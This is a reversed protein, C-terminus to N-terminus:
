LITRCLRFGQRNLEASPNHRIRSQIQAYNSALNWGGGTSVRSGYQESPRGTSGEKPSYDFGSGHWDWCWEFVNGSMDYLGFGNCKKQGVGQIKKDSNERTWAVEDANDSGAYEFDQNATAAYWWEWDTPLRYGNLELRQQVNRSVEEVKRRDQSRTLRDLGGEVEKPLIYVPELGQEESLKNCFVVSAMWNVFVVPRSSGIYSALNLPLDGIVSEWLANTVPYKGIAYKKKPIEVTQMVEMRLRQQFSESLSTWDINSSARLYMGAFFGAEFLDYWDTTDKQVERLVIKELLTFNGQYKESLVIQGGREELILVLSDLALLLSMGQRVYEEESHNLLPSIKEKLKLLLGSDNQCALNWESQLESFNKM